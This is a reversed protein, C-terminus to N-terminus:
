TSLLPPSPPHTILGNCYTNLGNCYTILGNCYIFLSFHTSTKERHRPLFFNNTKNTKIKPYNIDEGLLQFCNTAYYNHETPIRKIRPLEKTNTMIKEHHDIAHKLISTHLRTKILCFVGYLALTPRPTLGALRRAQVVGVM